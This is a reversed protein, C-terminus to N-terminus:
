FCHKTLYKHNKYEIVWKDFSFTLLWMSWLFLWHEITTNSNNRESLNKGPTAASEDNRPHGWHDRDDQVRKLWTVKGRGWWTASGIEEGKCLCAKPHSQGPSKPLKYSFCSLFVNALPCQPAACTFSTGAKLLTRLGQEGWVSGLSVSLQSQRLKRLGLDCTFSLPQKLVSCQAACNPAQYCIILVNPSCSKQSDFYVLLSREGRWFRFLMTNYTSTKHIMDIEDRQKSTTSLKITLTM